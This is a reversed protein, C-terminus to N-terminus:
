DVVGVTEAGTRPTLELRLAGDATSEWVLGRRDLEDAIPPRGSGSIWLRVAAARELLRGVAEGHGGHHPLLVLDFPGDLHGAALSAALGHGVADGCLLVRRGRWEVLLSRSGENDESPAGRVLTLRLSGREFVSRAAVEAPLDHRAVRALRSELVQPVAGAWSEISVRSTLWPLGNWHDTDLHSLVVHWRRQGGRRVLPALGRSAVGPRDRSGADFLLATAEAGDPAEVMVATGHGVDLATIRLDGIPAPRVFALGLLTALSAAVALRGGRVLALACGLSASWVAWAPRPPLVLPTGPWRDFWELSDILARELFAIALRLPEPAWCVALWDLILHAAVLPTAVLTALIGVPAIEGFTTWVLPTTALVAAVSVATASRLAGAGREVLVSGALRPLPQHWRFVQRRRREAGDGPTWRRELPRALLLIGLTACYSLTIAASELARPDALCELLLAAGWASLGDARRVRRVGDRAGRAPLHAALALAALAFAARSVPPSGGAIAAFAGLGALRLLLEAREAALAGIGLHELASAVASALPGLLVLSLLGVHLGSLALLHRTGTRTFLDAVSPALASRDGVLLASALGNPGDVGAARIRAVISARWRDRLTLLPRLDVLEPRAPAIRVLEDLAVRRLGADWAGDLASEPSAAWPRLEGPPLLAVREGERPAPGGFDLRWAPDGSCRPTGGPDVWLQGEIATQSSREPAFWAAHAGRGYGLAALAALWAAGARERGARGAAWGTLALALSLVGGAAVALASGGGGPAPWADPAGRGLALAQGAAVALAAALLPRAGLARFPPIRPRREV